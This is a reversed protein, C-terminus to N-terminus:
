KLSVRVLSLLAVTEVVNVATMYPSFADVISAASPAMSFLQYWFIIIVVNQILFFFVFLLLGVTFTSRIRRFSMSYLWLLIIILATNLLAFVASVYIWIDAM